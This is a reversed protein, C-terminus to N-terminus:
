SQTDGSALGQEVAWAALQTRTTFGLKHLANSVHMEITRESLVLERAIAENTLGRAVLLTSELERATLGGPSERTRRKGARSIAGPQATENELEDGGTALEIAEDITLAQGEQYANQWIEEDLQARATALDRDFLPRNIDWVAAGLAEYLAQAAGFLRAARRASEQHQRQAGTIAALEALCEAVVRKNGQEWFLMLSERLLTEARKFDGQSHATFGLHRITYARGEKDGLENYLSLGEELLSWARRYDGSHAAMLGVNTLGTAIGGKDGLERRIALSEEFAAQVPVLDELNMLVFGLNSLALALNAKDGVERFLAVSQEILPRAGTYDGLFYALRAAGNLAEARARQVVRRREDRATQTTTADNSLVRILWERGETLYGRVEWFRWLVGALRLGIEPGEESTTTQSWDLTARLNNHEEELRDLWEVQKPGKLQVVAREAFDLFYQAHRKGLEDAEGSEQLKERAYERITELMMFRPEEDWTAGEQRQLLSKGVLSAVGELTDMGLESGCVEEIAKLTCGGVFVGLRRFLTQEAPDLLNYGWDIAAQLTRQREPLNRAGGTLLKLRSKLRALVEEPPLVSIRAAALEIALPLGDLRLCIEAVAPANRQTLQFGPSIAQARQLFLAIAEYQLLAEPDPLRALDPLSLPPVPYQYEGYVHLRERSTVLVKLDPCHPLLEAVETAAGMVQEFNDLLLLIQRNRLYNALSNSLPQDPAEIIGLTQAVAPLVLGPETIPALPVFFTGDAFDEALNSSIEIGLRTKGIGPPGILTLLRVDRRQLLEYAAEIEKERGILPTPQAPLNHSFPRPEVRESPQKPFAVLSRHSM